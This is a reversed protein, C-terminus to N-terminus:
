KGFILDGVYDLNERDALPGPAIKRGFFLVSAKAADYGPWRAQDAPAEGENPDGTRIFNAWRTHMAEALEQPGTLGAAALNNFVFPLEGAHAAGLGNQEAQPAAYTFNYLYVSNGAAAALDAFRKSGASFVGYAVIQRARQEATNKAEVAFRELIRQGKGGGFIRAALMKYASQDTGAPIFISGEDKNFGLLLSVKAFEGAAMARAPDKPLVAGDFVPTLFFATTTTLDPIFASFRALAGADAARMKELGRADDGAEFVEALMASVELSKSLEGRAYCSLAPLSLVSGSEMIAGRFLGRALPSLMLASVSFSGASEGGVTVMGPDGGFAAINDRVWRLAKIQDLLGWNGTSGYEELTRRSAFFGLAGLRYNITVTVIGKRAFATGDYFPFSGSGAAFGGGHIFVYVPLASREGPGAPTWVNLTLCDESQAEPGAFVALQFCKNGFASCDLEGSWPEKDKPPAFRLDGLPPSAYPIGKYVSVGEQRLGRILGDKLQLRVTEAAPASTAALALLLAGLLFQRIFGSRNM